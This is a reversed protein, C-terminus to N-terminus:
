FVPPITLSIEDRLEAVIDGYRSSSDGAETRFLDELFLGLVAHMLLRARAKIMREECVGLTRGKGLVNILGREWRAKLIRLQALALPDGSLGEVFLIRLLERNENMLRNACRASYQVTQEFDYDPPAQELRLFTSDEILANLIEEKSSFHYYLAADTIGAEHAISRVSTRSFGRGSFLELAVELIRDRTENGGKSYRRSEGRRETTVM